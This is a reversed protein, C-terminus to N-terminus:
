KWLVRKGGFSSKIQNLYDMRDRSHCHVYGFNVPTILLPLNSHLVYPASALKKWVKDM